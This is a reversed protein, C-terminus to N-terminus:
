TTKFIIHKMTFVCMYKNPVVVFTHLMEGGCGTHGQKKCEDGCMCCRTWHSSARLGLFQADVSLPNVAHLNREKMGHRSSFM